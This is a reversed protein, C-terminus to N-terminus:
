WLIGGICAIPEFRAQLVLQVIFGSMWVGLCMCWQFFMGDGTDYKKVPIFNTGFCLVSVSAAAFGVVNNGPM